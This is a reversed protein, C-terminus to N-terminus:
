HTTPGVGAGGSPAAGGTGGTGATGGATGGTAGTGAGAGTNGTPSPTTAGTTPTAPTTGSTTAGPVTSTSAGSAPTSSSGSSSHPGSFATGSFPVTPPTWDGCYGGDTSEMYQKWIPAALVGGFGNIMPVNGTPNGVWVATSVKPTYGVFWANAYNEATGTKGAAPCGYNATTGTAGAKTLVGKLVTDAAYTENYPFVNTPKPAGFDRTSGDQFVVKGIITPAHHTGGDAITAYADAMQLPTTGNTLGGLVESANGNLTSTIGMAHAIADLKDGAVTNGMDASLQAFVTNDSIATADTLNVTGNYTNTDTHVSWTPDAPLWGAPLAKSTYYTSNPDGHFDHILEMLAFVKFASGTQRSAQTAYNVKTTVYSGSTAIAEIHGTAADVSALGAGVGPGGQSALLPANDHIAATAQAQKRLDITTYIKLGGHTLTACRNPTKPCLDQRVSQEIYDFVYPDVRKQYLSDAKVELPRRNEVAAQHGTIKGATVMAQLVESRRQRAASRDVFPNYGSPAQPLGALLAAQDLTLDQVPRDFFMMSAAGVGYATQGGVTGYPVNNLYNDLIWSKSHKAELQTALKAQVIKYKLDRQARARKYRAPLYVNDVLQMTLTSAGQLSTRGNLADKIAARLIGQYDLAGHQYFRRDEIAVTAQKLRKPIVSGSVLTHVDPSYIYGLPTGDAAFVESPSGPTTPHVSSLNPASHAVNVVWGAIALAGLVAASLVLVGGLAVVRGLPSGRNRRRRRQRDRRSM